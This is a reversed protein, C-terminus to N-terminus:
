KLKEPLEPLAEKIKAKNREDVKELKSKKDEGAQCRGHLAAGPAVTISGTKVDGFIKASSTLELSEKIKINGQVEGAIIANAAIVNAFIKAREGIQLNKETQIKGAVVGEIIVNGAAVFDGEVQVSPGIITEVENAGDEKKFM